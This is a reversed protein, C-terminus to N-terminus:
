VDITYKWATFALSPASAKIYVSENFSAPFSIADGAALTYIKEIALADRYITLVKSNDNNCVFVETRIETDSFISLPTTQTDALTSSLISQEGKYFNLLENLSKADDGSPTSNGSYLKSALQKVAQKLKNHTIAM